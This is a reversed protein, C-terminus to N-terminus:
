GFSPVHKEPAAVAIGPVLQYVFMKQVSIKGIFISMELVFIGEGESQLQSKGGIWWVKRLELQFCENRWHNGLGSM